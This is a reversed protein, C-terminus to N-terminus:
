KENRIMGNYGTDKIANCITSHYSSANEPSQEESQHESASIVRTLYEQFM